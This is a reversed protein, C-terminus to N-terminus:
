LDQFSTETRKKLYSPGAEYFLLTTVHFKQVDEPPPIPHEEERELVGLM